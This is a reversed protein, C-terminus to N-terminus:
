FMELIKDYIVKMRTVWLRAALRKPMVVNVIVLDGEEYGKCGM